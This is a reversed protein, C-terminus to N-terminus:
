TVPNGCMFVGERLDVHERRLWGKYMTWGIFGLHRKFRGYHLAPRQMYNSYLLHPLDVHERRLWGIYGMRYLVCNEITHPDTIYFTVCKIHRKQERFFCM